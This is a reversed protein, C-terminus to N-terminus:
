MVPVFDCFLKSEDHEDEKSRNLQKQKRQETEQIGRREGEGGEERKGGRVREKRWEIM